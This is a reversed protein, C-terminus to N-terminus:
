LAGLIHRTLITIEDNRERIKGTRKPMDNVMM